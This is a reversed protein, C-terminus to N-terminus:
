RDGPQPAPGEPAPTPQPAPYEVGAPGRPPPVASPPAPPAPRRDQPTRVAVFLLVVAIVTLVVGMALVGWGIGDLAPFEAGVRAEVQIGASGDANMIVLMWNGEAPEWTLQQTGTGSASATWFDQDAPPGAPAGGPVEDTRSAPQDFGLDDIVTRQVDGLYATVDAVPAIGVFVDQGVGTVDVRATGLAASVPLWDADTRLDIRESVLASGASSLDEEPSFVFGDDRSTWGAWLLSGGVGVLTLGPILLLVGFVLALIRGAGWPRRPAPPPASWTPGTATM